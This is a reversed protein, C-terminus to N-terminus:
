EMKSGIINYNMRSVCKHAKETCGIDTEFSNQRILEAKFTRYFSEMPSNDYPCGARSVNQTIHKKECFETFARSTYQFDTCWTENPGSAAFDQKFLNEIKKYCDGKHYRPKKPIVVSRLKLERM